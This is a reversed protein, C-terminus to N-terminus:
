APVEDPVEHEQPHAPCAALLWYLRVGPRDLIRGSTTWACDTCGWSAPLDAGCDDCRQGIPDGGDPDRLPEVSPHLCDTTEVEILAESPRM